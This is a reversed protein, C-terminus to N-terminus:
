IPFGKRFLLYTAVMPIYTYLTWLPLLGGGIAGEIGMAVAMAVAAIVLEGTLMMVVMGIGITFLGLFIFWVFRTPLGDGASSIADVIGQGPLGVFGVDESFINSSTAVGSVESTVNQIRLAQQTTLPVDTSELPEETNTIGSPAVPFSMTGTNSNSSRDTLTASPTTNLQYYLQQGSDDEVILGLATILPTSSSDTTTLTVRVRFDTIAALSEGVVLGTPCSGNTATSFAGGGDVSTEILVTTNTPEISEWGIACYALDTVSSLDIATSLRTGTLQFSAVIQFTPTGVLAIGGIAAAPVTVTITETAPVAYASEAALTITVITASTRVVDGVAFALSNWGNADSLDSVLGDLIAQRQANFTAGSDVWETNTLTIIITEGGAIIEAPTGGSGGLTGSIVASEVLVTIGITPTGTIAGGLLVASGPVTVTVIENSDINLGSVESKVLTITVISASTRIVAGVSMTDRVQNNWGDTSTIDADLGDIINQRQADFTAGDAVWSEDDLTIIITGAGDRVEQESAGDGVTGTIAAAPSAHVVTLKPHQASTANDSTSFENYSTAGGQDEAGPAEILWGNNTAYTGDVFKQVDDDLTNGDFDVFASAATGDLTVTASITDSRDTAAGAGATDWNNGTSYINWTVQLEVWDQLLRRVNVAWTGTGASDAADQEFLSLTADTVTDGSDIAGTIDFKIVDRDQQNAGGASDGVRMKTDTGDNTTPANAEIHSDNGAAAGPQIVTTPDIVYPYAEPPLLSDDFSFEARPGAILEWPTTEYEFGNAGTVIPMPVLFGDGIINGRGDLVLAEGGQLQYTFRYTPLGWAATVTAEAKIGNNTNAYTWVVGDRTFTAKNGGVNPRLPTLWLIGAGSENSRVAVGQNSVRSSYLPHREMVSDSGNFIYSTSTAKWIGPADEYHINSQFVTTFLGDPNQFRKSNQTRRDVVETAGPPAGWLSPDAPIQSPSGEAIRVGDKPLAVALFTALFILLAAAGLRLVLRGRSAM